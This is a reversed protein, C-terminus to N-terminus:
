QLTRETTSEKKIGSHLISATTGSSFKKRYQAPLLKVENKFLKRFSGVDLYGIETAIDEVGRNTEALLTKAKEIRISQLYKLPTTGVARSFRRYFTRSTLSSEEITQIIVDANAYNEAIWCQAKKIAADNHSIPLSAIAYSSQPNEHRDLLFMKASQNAVDLGVLREILFLVLDHWASGGGATIIGGDDVLIADPVLEVSPNKVKLQKLFAWHTTARKNELLGTASLFFAGTCVSAILTGNEAMTKFWHILDKSLKPENGTYAFSPILILDASQIDQWSTKTPIEFHNHCKIKHGSIATLSIDFLPSVPLGNILSWSIGAASFVDMPGTLTSAMCNDPAFIVIDKM